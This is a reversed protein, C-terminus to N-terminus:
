IESTKVYFKKDYGRIASCVGELRPISPLDDPHFDIIVADALIFLPISKMARLEDFVNKFGLMSIDVGTSQAYSNVLMHDGPPTQIRRGYFNRIFGCQTYQERLRKTLREIAFLEKVKSIMDNAVDQPVHQTLRSTGGGYLTSIVSIKAIDRSIGGLLADSIYTYIDDPVDIGAEVALVRAELSSFDIMMVAGGRWRSTFMKRYEKKLTLINPGDAVTMRGTRSGVVDYTTVKCTGEDDHQFTGLASSGGEDKSESLYRSYLEVDLHCRGLSGVIARTPKFTDVYYDMDPQSCLGVVDRALEHLDDRYASRPMIKWWPLTDFADNDVNLQRMADKYQSRPFTLTRGCISAYQLFDHEDATAWRSLVWKDRTWDVDVHKRSTMSGDASDLIVWSPSGIYDPSINVHMYLMM